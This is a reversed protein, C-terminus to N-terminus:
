RRAPRDAMVRLMEARGLAKGAATRAELATVTAAALRLNGQRRAEILWRERAGALAPGEAPDEALAAAPPLAALREAQAAHATEAARLEALRADRVAAALRALAALRPDRGPAASM